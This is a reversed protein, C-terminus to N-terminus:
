IFFINFLIKSDKKKKEKETLCITSQTRMQVNLHVSYQKSEQKKIFHKHVKKLSFIIWKFFLFSFFDCEVRFIERLLSSNVITPLKYKRKKWLVMLKQLTFIIVHYFLSIFYDNEVIYIERFGLKRKKCLANLKM